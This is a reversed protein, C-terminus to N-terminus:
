QKKMDNHMEVIYVTRKIDDIVDAPAEIIQSLITFTTPCIKM